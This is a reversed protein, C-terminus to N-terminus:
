RCRANGGFHDLIVPSQIGLFDLEEGLLEAVQLRVTAPDGSAASTVTPGAIIDEPSAIIAEPM